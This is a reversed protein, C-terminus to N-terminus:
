IQKNQTGVVTMVFGYDFNNENGSVTGTGYATDEIDENTFDGNTITEYPWVWNITLTEKQTDTNGSEAREIIGKLESDALQSLSSYEASTEGTSSKTVSFLLNDPKNGSEEVEIYYMVDVESNVANLDIEFAGSAGPAIKGDELDVENATNILSIKGTSIENESSVDFKWKAIEGSVDEKYDTYYKAFTFGSLFVVTLMMAFISVLLIKKNKSM